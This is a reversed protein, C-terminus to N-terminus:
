TNIIIIIIICHRPNTDYSSTCRVEVTLRGGKTFQWHVMVEFGSIHFDLIRQSTTQLSVMVYLCASLSFVSPYAPLCFSSVAQPADKESVLWDLESAKPLQKESFQSLLSM